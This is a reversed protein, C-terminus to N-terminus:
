GDPWFVCHAIGRVCARRLATKLGWLVEETPKLATHEKNTGRPKRQSSGSIARYAAFRPPAPGTGRATPNRSPAYLFPCRAHETTRFVFCVRARLAEAGSSKSRSPRLPASRLRTTRSRQSRLDTRLYARRSTGGRKRGCTGRLIRVCAMGSLKFQRRGM